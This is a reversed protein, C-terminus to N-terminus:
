VNNDCVRTIKPTITLKSQAATNQCTNVAITTKMIADPVLTDTVTTAYSGSLTQWNIAVRLTIPGNKDPTFGPMVCTCGKGTPLMTSLINQWEKVLTKYFVPQDCGAASYCDNINSAPIQQDVIYPIYQPDATLAFNTLQGMMQYATEQRGSELVTYISRSQLSAVGLLSISLIISAVMVEILSFGSRNKLKNNLANM